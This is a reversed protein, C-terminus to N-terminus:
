IYIEEEGRRERGTGEEEKGRREIDIGETIWEMLRHIDSGAGEEEKGTGEIDIEEM